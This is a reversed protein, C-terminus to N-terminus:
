KRNYPKKLYKKAQKHSDNYDDMDLVIEYYKKAKSRQGLLDYIKAIYLNTKVGFGTDEEDLFNNGENCKLFYKLATEYNARQMQALGIYYMAERATKNDYGTKKRMVRLLAERWTAEWKDLYGLSVLCRGYYRHFYPNNPYSNFLDTAYVLAERRKREFDDDYYIQLLVVKAEIKAYRANNAAAKLQLIGLEKDGNPLFGLMPKLVPFIEPVVVAFYNYIGTGLMIDYNHSMKQCQRLLGFADAGDRAAQLWKKRITYYRGRFGIAGAKFFLANLDIENTDLINDCVNIVRDIKKLFPKDYQETYRFLQIKWWDVMADLFYGAPHEPYRKIMEDFVEEAQDFEVNYIHNSGKLVLSDADEYMIAWQAKLPTLAFLFVISLLIYRM